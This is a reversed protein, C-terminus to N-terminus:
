FNVNFGARIMRGRLVSTVRHYAGSRETIRGQVAGSNFVNFVELNPSFRATERYRFERSVGFDTINTNPLSSDGFRKLPYSLSTNTLTPVLTRSIVYTEAEPKGAFHQLNGSLNIAYPLRYVGSLKFTRPVSGSVPGGVFRNQNPDNLNLGDRNQHSSLTLGSMLMFNGSMRRTVTIDLGNFYNGLDSRNEFVTDILSRYSSKINYITVTEGNSPITVNIPDYGANYPVAVNTGSITRWNDRHFYTVSTVIGGPLEQQVGASYEDSTPRRIGNTYRNTTGFNFGSGAGLENLQPIQDGNDTWDVTNTATSLPNVREMHGSGISLNYHNASLKIATRGNGFLDYVLSLRPAIDKWDPVDPTKAFCQSKVFTGAQQCQAPIWGKTMQFRLGMNLTLKRNVSWKDQIYFANDTWFSRYNTPTSYLTVSEPSGNRFNAVLGSPYHSMSWVRNGNMSHGYQYGIKVDHAGAFYSMSANTVGKYQPGEAYTQNCGTLVQTGLDNHPICGPRVNEQPYYPSIGTQVSAALDVVVRPSLTGTWKLQYIDVLNKQIRSAADDSYTTTRRHYRYTLNRSFTFHLQMSPRMQWSVKGSANWIRNDDVPLTGDPNYSGVQFQNLANLKGTTTFWLKDRVIPGALTAGSDFISLIKAAPTFNPNAALVKAPIAALLDKRLDETLNDSNMGTNSGTFNFSGHFANTGTKTVMNMVVGGQANEASINGVQYNAEQFMGTDMYVMASGGSGGSWNVEMGDIAYRNESSPSGHVAM